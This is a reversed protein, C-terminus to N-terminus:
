TILSPKLHEKCTKAIYCDMYTEGFNFDLYIIKRLLLAVVDNLMTVKQTFIKCINSLYHRCVHQNGSQCMLMKIPKDVGSLTHCVQLHLRQWHCQLVSNITPKILTPHNQHRLTCHIVVSRCTCVTTGAHALLLTWRM